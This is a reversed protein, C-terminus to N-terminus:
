AAKKAGQSIRNGINLANSTHIGFFIWLRETKETRAKIKKLLFYEKDTGFSGELRSAREKTIMKAIQSKHEHHRGPRGKIKFDTRIEKKTLLKRNANTAYIADAGLIKVETHSLSQAKYITQSMRTSENFADFSLHEIFSIGDIQLKHVKAGFEVPKVEKGRVIPRVYPKDISVIAGKPRIGEYFKDRQQSLLTQIALRRKKYEATTKLSPIIQELHTLEKELKTLLRLLGRTLSRRKKRTKKRMKSYSVNRRSWKRYKTRPMRLKLRKSILQIQNYVWETSEWLLKVDTPYRINSEYCTADCTVSNLNTMYPRWKQMLVKELDDINMLESLECRIQSVIKYNTLHDGPSLLTDCFIQYYINGNFQEILKRDSCACYHKLFMLAVKGRPSFISAPGKSEQKLGLIQVLEEWPIALYIKGLDTQYFSFLYDEYSTDFNPFNFQKQFQSIRRIKM